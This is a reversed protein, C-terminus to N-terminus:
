RRGRRRMMERRKRKVDERSRERAAQQKDPLEANGGPADLLNDPLDPLSPFYTEQLYLLIRRQEEICAQEAEEKSLRRMTINTPDRPNVIIEFWDNM